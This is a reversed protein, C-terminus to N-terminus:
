SACRGSGEEFAPETEPEAKLIRLACLLDRLRGAPLQAGLEHRDQARVGGLLLFTASFAAIGGAMALIAHLPLVACATAGIFSAPLAPYLAERLWGRGLERSLARANSAVVGVEMFVAAVGAGTIGFRPVLLIGLLVALALGIGESVLVTAARGSAFLATGLVYNLSVLPLLFCLLSLAPGAALFGPGFVMGMIAEARPALVAAAPLALVLLARMLFRSMRRFRDRDQVVLRALVPYSATMLSGPVFVWADVAKFAAGYLGAEAHGRFASLLVVNMRFYLIFLLGALAFPTGGRVLERIRVMGTPQLRIRERRLSVFLLLAAGLFSSFAVAGAVGVVGAGSRLAYYGCGVRLFSASVEILVRPVFVERSSLLAAGCNGLVIFLGGLALLGFVALTRMDTHLLWLVAAIVLTGTLWLAFRALLTTTLVEGARTRERVLDRIIVWDLGFSAALTVYSALAAAVTYEGFSEAGLRRAALVVFGFSAVLAALNGSLLWASNRATRMMM